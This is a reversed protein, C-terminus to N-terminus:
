SPMPRQDPSGDNAGVLGSVTALLVEPQHPKNLFPRGRHEPPISDAAYATLFVFPIGAAALAHAVPFVWENQVNVDLIAADVLYHVMTSLAAGISTTPLVARCGAERLLATLDTALVSDDEVILISRGGLSRELPRDPPKDV